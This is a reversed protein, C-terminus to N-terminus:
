RKSKVLNVFLYVLKSSFVLKNEDALQSLEEILSSKANELDTVNQEMKICKEEAASLQKELNM